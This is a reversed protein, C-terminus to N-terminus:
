GALELPGTFEPFPRTLEPEVFRVLTRDLFVGAVRVVHCDRDADISKSGHFLNNNAM